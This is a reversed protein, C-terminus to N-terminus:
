EATPHETVGYHLIRRSNLEMVVFVYLIRVRGHGRHLLRIAHAYNSLFTLWRQTPDPHRGPGHRRGLYKRATSPAVRIGLKLKLENAIREEGWTVSDQAM